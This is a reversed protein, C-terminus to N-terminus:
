RCAWFWMFIDGKCKAEKAVAVHSASLLPPLLLTLCLM